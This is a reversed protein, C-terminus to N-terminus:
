RPERFDSFFPCGFCDEEHKQVSEVKTSHIRRLHPKTV